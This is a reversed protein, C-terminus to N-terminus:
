ELGVRMKSPVVVEELEFLKKFRIRHQENQQELVVENRGIEKVVNGNVVDGVQLLLGNIVTMPMNQDWIIASLVLGAFLEVTQADDSNNFKELSEATWNFPDRRGDGLSYMEDVTARKQVLLTGEGTSFKELGYSFVSTCLILLAFVIPVVAFMKM